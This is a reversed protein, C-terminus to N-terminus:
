IQEEADYWNDALFLGSPRWVPRTGRSLLSTKPTKYGLSSHPREENYDIRWAAIKRRTACGKLGGRASELIM